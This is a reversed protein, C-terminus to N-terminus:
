VKFGTVAFVCVRWRGHVSLVAGGLLRAHAHADRFLGCGAVSSVLLPLWLSGLGDQLGVVPLRCKARAAPVFLEHLGFGNVRGLLGAMAM